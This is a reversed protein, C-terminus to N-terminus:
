GTSKSDNAELAEQTHQVESWEQLFEKLDVTRSTVEKQIWEFFHEEWVDTHLLYRYYPHYLYLAMRQNLFEDTPQQREQIAERYAYTAAMKRLEEMSAADRQTIAHNRVVVGWKLQEWEQSSLLDDVSDSRQFAAAYWSKIADQPLEIDNESILQKRIKAEWWRRAKQNWYSHANQRAQERFNEETPEELNPFVKRIFDENVEPLIIVYPVINRLVVRDSLDKAAHEETELLAALQAEKGEFYNRLNVELEDGKRKGVLQSRLGEPLDEWMWIVNKRIGGELENGNDGLEVVEALLRQPYQPSQELAEVPKLSLHNKRIEEVEADVDEDTLRVEIREPFNSVQLNLPFIPTPVEVFHFHWGTEDRQEDKLVIPLLVEPADPNQFRQTIISRLKEDRLESEVRSQMMRRLMGLPVKGKRFGPLQVTKKVRKLERLVHERIAEHAVDAAYLTLGDQQAIKNLEM